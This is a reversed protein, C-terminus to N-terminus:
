YKRVAKFIATIDLQDTQNYTCQAVSQYAEF